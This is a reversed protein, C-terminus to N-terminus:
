VSCDIWSWCGVQASSMRPLYAAVCEGFSCVGNVLALTIFPKLGAAAALISTDVLTYGLRRENMALFRNFTQEIMLKSRCRHREPNLGLSGNAFAQIPTSNRGHLFRYFQRLHSVDWLWYYSELM